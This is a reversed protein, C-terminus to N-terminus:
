KLRTNLITLLSKAFPDYQYYDEEIYQTGRKIFVTKFASINGDNIAANYINGESGWSCDIYGIDKIGDKNYDYYLLKTKAGDLIKTNKTFVFKSKDVTYKGNIKTYAFINWYSSKGNIGFGTCAIIDGTQEDFVYDINEHFDRGYFPLTIVDEKKFKGNGSNILIKQDYKPVGNINKEVTLFLIDNDGDKDIDKTVVDFVSGAVVPLNSINQFITENEIFRLYFGETTFYPFSKIGKYVFVFNDATVVMDVIGDGDIDDIDGGYKTTKGFGCCSTLIQRDVDQLIPKVDYKGKGDSIILKISETESDDTFVVLDIYNDNNLNVPIIEGAYNLVKNGDNILNVDDFRKTSPNYLLFSLGIFQKDDRCTGGTFVDVWGDNNFDGAVSYWWGGNISSPKLPIQFTQVILDTQLGTGHLWYNKDNKKTQDVKYGIFNRLASNIAKLSKSVTNSLTNKSTVTVAISYTGEKKLGPINISVSPQMITTDIKHIQKSSDTWTSIVSVMIGSSPLKSSVTIVLPLTDIVYYAGTDINTSFKISEEQTVTPPPTSPTETKTCAYTCLVGLIVIIKKM